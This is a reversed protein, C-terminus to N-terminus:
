LSHTYGTKGRIIIYILFPSGFISSLRGTRNDPSSALLARVSTQARLNRAPPPTQHRGMRSGARSTNGPPPM